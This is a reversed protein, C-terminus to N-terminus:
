LIDGMIVAKTARNVLRFELGKFSDLSRVHHLHKVATNFSMSHGYLRRWYCADSRPQESSRSREWLFPGYSEVFWKQDDPIM